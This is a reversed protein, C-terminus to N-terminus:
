PKPLSVAQANVFAGFAQERSSRDDFFVATKKCNLDEETSQRRAFRNEREASV